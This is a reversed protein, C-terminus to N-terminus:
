MPNTNLMLLGGFIVFYIIQYLFETGGIIPSLLFFSFKGGLIVYAALAGYAGLTSSIKTFKEWGKGLYKKAFGPLRHKEKTRLVIEGYMLHLLTIIFGLGIFYILGTITGSKAIVYHVGFFGAGIVMGVLVSFARVTPNSFFNM